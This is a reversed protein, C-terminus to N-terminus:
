LLDYSVSLCGTSNHYVGVIKNAPLKVNTLIFDGENSLSEGVIDNTGIVMDGITLVSGYSNSSLILLRIIAGNSGTSFSSFSRTANNTFTNAGLTTFGDYSAKNEIATKVADLKTQATSDSVSLTIGSFTNRYDSVGAVSILVTMTLANNPDNNIVKFKEISGGYDVSIKSSIGGIKSGNVEITYKDHSSNLIIFHRFNDHPLDVPQQNGKGAPIDVKYDKIKVQQVM